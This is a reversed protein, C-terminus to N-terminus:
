NRFPEFQSSVAIAARHELKYAIGFLVVQAQRGFPRGVRARLLSKQDDSTQKAEKGESVFHFLIIRAHVGFKWSHASM